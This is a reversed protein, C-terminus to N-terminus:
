GARRGLAGHGDRRPPTERLANEVLNSAVQLLRDHDGEVWAEDGEAALTSASSAPRRRTAPSRPM